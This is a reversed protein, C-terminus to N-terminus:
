SGDGREQKRRLLRGALTGEEVAGEVEKEIEKRPAASPAAPSLPTHQEGPPPAAEPEAPAAESL